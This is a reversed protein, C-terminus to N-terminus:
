CKEFQTFWKGEESSSYYEDNSSSSEKQLVKQKKSEPQLFFADMPGKKEGRKGLMGFEDQKQLPAPVKFQPVVQKSAEGIVAKFRNVTALKTHIVQASEGQNLM